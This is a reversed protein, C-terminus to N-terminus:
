IDDLELVGCRVGTKLLVLTCSAIKAIKINKIFIYIIFPIKILPASEKLFNSDLKTTSQQVIM